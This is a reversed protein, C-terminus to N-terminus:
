PITLMPHSRSAHANALGIVGVTMARVARNGGPALYHFEILYVNQGSGHKATKLLDIVGAFVRRVRLDPTIDSICEIAVGTLIIMEDRATM